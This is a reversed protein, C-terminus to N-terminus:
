FKYDVAVFAIEASYNPNAYAGTLYNAGEVLTYDQLMATNLKYSQYAFGFTFAYHETPTYRIKASYSNLRYDDLNMVDVNDNNLGNSLAGAFLYTFDASGNSNLYDWQLLLTVKKPLIYIETGLGLSYSTDKLALNWNYNSADQTAPNPSGTPSFTRQFQENKDFELDYYGHVKFLERFTYGVDFNFQNSRTSQLGLVTDPFDSDVYKYGVNFDLFPLPYIDVSAKITNRRQPAVDFRWIYYEVDTPDAAVHDADRRMYEYSIRPTMFDLGRYRLEAAFTNDRTNPLVDSTQRSMGTYAYRTDLDLRAPLNWNLDIGLKGKEYGLLDNTAGDITLQDSKDKKYYYRFDIRANLLPIPNSLLIIDINRTDVTGNFTPGLLSTSTLLVSEESQARGAALKLNIQSHYPLKASGAFAVKYADNSPPLSYADAASAIPRQFSLVTNNNNFQSYFVSLEAFYPNKIYGMSINLMNTTYDIPMPLEVMSSGLFGSGVGAGIPYTGTKEEHPVSVTFFFPKALDLSLGVEYRKRDTQYDFTNWQSPSNIPQTIILNNTGAGSYFTKAGFTMNHPIESFGLNVKFKGYMGGEFEYKQTDYGINSAQASAFVNESDYNLNFGGYVGDRTDGFENFKAENGSQNIVLPMVSVDGHFTGDAFLPAAPLIVMIAAGVLITRLKM